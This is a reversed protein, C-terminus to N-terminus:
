PVRRLRLQRFIFVLKNSKKVKELFRKSPADVGGLALDAGVILLGILASFSGGLTLLEFWTIEAFCDRVAHEIVFAVSALAWPLGVSRILGGVSGRGFVYFWGHLLGILPPISGLLYAYGVGIVGYLPILIVSFLLTTFGAFFTVVTVLWIRGTGRFFTAAPAYAAQPIYSLAILQGLTASHRAFEPSIWLRLLDPMLVFLPLFLVPSIVSCAWTANWFLSQAAKTDRTSSFRPMLSESGSAVVLYLRLAVNDPTGLYAVPSPGLKAGLVIRGSERLMLYFGYGLFSFISFGLIERLGKFSLTPILNVGPSIRRVVIARAWLTGIQVVVDWLVLHLVGFKYVALLVYGASRVITQAVGIKSSIDYRQLAMPISVYVGSILNLSFLLGSLRLLWGFLRHESAPISFLTVLVPAAVFFSTCVVVSIILYFLLTSGMVRNVGSINGEGYHYAVYRLTAEGFGFQLVGLIGTVSWVLLLIGYQAPGMNHILLSAIIFSIAISWITCFANWGANIAAGRPRVLPTNMASGTTATTDASM